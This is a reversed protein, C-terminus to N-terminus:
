TINVQVRELTTFCIRWGKETKRYRDHYFGFGQLHKFPLKAAEGDVWLNDEMPWFGTAETDSTFGIDPMHGHHISRVGELMSLSHKVFDDPSPLPQAAAAVPDLQQSRMDIEADDAFVNRLLDHDKTDVARWYRAKLQKIDELAALRQQEDM